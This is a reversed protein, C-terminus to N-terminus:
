VYGKRIQGVGGGGNERLYRYPPSCTFRHDGRGKNGRLFFDNKKKKKKKKEEGPSRRGAKRLRDCIRRQTHLYFEVGNLEL